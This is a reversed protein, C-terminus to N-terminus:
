HTGTAEPKVKSSALSDGSRCWQQHLERLGVVKVPQRCWGAGGGDDIDNIGAHGIAELTTSANVSGRGM